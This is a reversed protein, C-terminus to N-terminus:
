TDGRSERTEARVELMEAEEGRGLERLLAAYAELTESVDPHDPGLAEERIALARQFATEAEATRRQKAYLRAMDHLTWGLNPHGPRLKQERITMAREYLPEAEALRGQDRYLNALGHLSWAVDPHDPALSKERIRTARLFLPEAEAHRQLATYNNALNTLATAVESHDPELEEEVIRLVREFLPKAEAHRGANSYLFALSSVTWRLDLPHTGSAECIALARLLLPEAEDPKGQKALLYALRNLGTVFRPHEPGLAKEYIAVARRSLPEAREYLGQRSYHVSLNHLGAAISPHDPGLAEEDITLARRLFPEAEAYRGQEKYLLGLNNLVDSVKPHDPGQERERIVLARRLLPEAEAFRDQAIYVAALVNLTGAVDLHAPGLAEEQIALARLSLSEAEAYRKQRWYLIALNDLAIAVEPHEPGLERERLALARQALPAAQEYAGLKRYVRGMTHMLRAQVLPQDGLEEEIRQAGKELLERATITDGRSEGPDSVEFLGELFESVQEATEAERAVRRAQLAMAVGFAALLVVLGVTAAVPVKHRAVAKRLVYGTSPARAQVPENKLYREVDAALESASAYRRSREKELTKLTIWNLEGRLHKALSRLDTRRQRAVESALGGLSSLRTGLKPPEQERIVREVQSYSLASLSFPVVGVLLEYLLVGLSYVDTTTDVEVGGLDAQEPSMYEPTGILLGQQTYVTKETLRQDTAKAVGFDIVKPVSVGDELSVLVNSPKVDRHIIGKQHAHHIARCVQVFLELRDRIELKHKDCYETIALGGVPEMVFYPRGQETAGADLVKAIHTHSMLALAQRESEFRAIVEATDMGLKIVKLAVRRRVPEEQRALYVVGMGGEGLEELIRYPGIRKPLVKKM